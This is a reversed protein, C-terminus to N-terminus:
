TNMSIEGFMIITLFLRRAYLWGTNQYVYIYIYTSEVLFCSVWMCTYGDHIVYTKITRLAGETHCPGAWVGPSRCHFEGADKPSGQPDLRSMSVFLHASYPKGPRGQSGWPISLPVGLKPHPDVILCRIPTRLPGRPISVPCVYSWTLRTPNGLPGQSRWPISLPVGLKPHPDVILCRLSDKPPRQPDVILCGPSRSPGCICSTILSTLRSLLFLVIVLSALRHCYSHFPVV